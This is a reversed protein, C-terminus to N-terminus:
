EHNPDLEWQHSPDKIFILPEGSTDLNSWAVVLWGGHIKLRACGANEDNNIEEWQRPYEM